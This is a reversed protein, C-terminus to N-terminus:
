RNIYGNKDRWQTQIQKAKVKLEVNLQEELFRATMYMQKNAKQGKTFFYQTTGNEKKPVLWSGDERITNGTAYVWGIDGADPHPNAQGVIGTGYEVYLVGEGEQVIRYGLPTKEWRTSLYLHNTGLGIPTLSKCYEVARDLVKEMEESDLDTYYTVNKLAKITAQIDKSNLGISRESSAM